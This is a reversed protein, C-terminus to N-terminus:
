HYEIRKQFVAVPTEKITTTGIIRSNELSIKEKRDSSKLIEEFPGYKGKLNKYLEFLYKKMIEQEETLEDRRSKWDSLQDIICGLKIKYHYDEYFKYDPKSISEQYLEKIMKDIQEYRIKPSVVISNLTIITKDNGIFENPSQIKLVPTKDSPNKSAPIREHWVPYASSRENYSEGPWILTNDYKTLYKRLNGYVNFNIIRRAIKIKKLEELQEDNYSKDKLIDIELALLSKLYEKLEESKYKGNYQSIKTKLEKYLIEIQNDFFPIQEKAKKM